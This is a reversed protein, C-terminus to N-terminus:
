ARPLLVRVVPGGGAAGEVELQGGSQRVFGAVGALELGTSEGRQAGAFPEFLGATADSAGAASSGVALLVYAGAPVDPPRPASADDLDIAATGITIRGPGGLHDRLALAVTRLARELRVRDVRVRPLGPALLLVLDVGAGLDDRLEAERSRVLDCLDVDEAHLAQARGVATLDRAMAALRDTARGIGETHGRLAADGELRAALLVQHRRASAIAEDLRRAVEAAMHAVADRCRSDVLRGHLRKVETVDVLFGSLRVDGGGASTTARGSDRVWVPAGDRAVLRYELAYPEGSRASAAYAALVAARDDAHVRQAWLGPDAHWAHADFGLLSRFEPGAYTTRREGALDSEYFVAPTQEVLSRYRAQAQRLGEERERLADAMADVSRALGALEGRGYPEGVRAALDGGRIRETVRLVALARRTVLYDGAIWAVVFALTAAIGLGILNRTLVAGARAVADEATLGVAVYVGAAEQGHRLEVWGWPRERGDLGPQLGTGEGTRLVEAVLPHDRFNRGVFGRDPHRLLVSGERDLALVVADRPLEAEAPLRELWALDIAAFVVGTVTGTADRVPAGANISPLRHVRGIQYVGLAPRGTRLAEQFYRRDRLDRAADNPPPLASARLMGDAGIVGFNAFRRDSDLMEKLFTEAYEPSASRVVPLVALLDVLRIAASFLNAGQVAALRATALADRQGRELADRRQELGTLLILGLAPLVALAVIALLRM